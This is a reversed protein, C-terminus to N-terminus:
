SNLYNTKKYNSDKILIAIKNARIIPTSSTM